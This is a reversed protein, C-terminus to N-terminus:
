VVRVPVRNRLSAEAAFTAVTVARIDAFPILPRGKKLSDFFATLMEKQGKNQSLTKHHEPKGAGYVDLARFDDLVWANGNQFVELREKALGKPGNAFYHVTGVSGDAFDITISVTDALHAADDMASASVQVPSAGTLYAILDIFHCVEGIIRGGGMDPDQIWHDPAIAGANVRYVATLPRPRLASKLRTVLPAFRRNFGVMLHIKGDQATWADEIALLEEETLCLPKEVYVHKGAELAARVLRGHSDHRTTIFVVSTDEDALIEDPDDACWAFGFKEAVRRSTTGSNTAV